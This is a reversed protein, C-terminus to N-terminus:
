KKQQQQSKLYLPVVHHVVQWVHVEEQRLVWTPGGAAECLIKHQSGCGSQRIEPVNKARHVDLVLRRWDTDQMLEIWQPCSDM